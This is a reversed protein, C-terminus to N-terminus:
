DWEPNVLMVDVVTELACLLSCSDDLTECKRTGVDYVVFVCVVFASGDVITDEREPVSDNGGDHITCVGVVEVTGINIDLLKAEDLLKEIAGTKVVESFSIVKLTLTGKGWGKLISLM